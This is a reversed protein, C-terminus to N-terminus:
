IYFFISIASIILSSLRGYYIFLEPNFYIKWKILEPSLTNILFENIFILKLIIILNLLPAYIPDIIKLYGTFFSLYSLTSYQFNVEDLNIFFPLGYDARNFNLTFFIIITIFIFLKEKINHIKKKEM